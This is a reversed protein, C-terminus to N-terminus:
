AHSLPETDTPCAFSPARRSPTRSSPEPSIVALAAPGGFGHLGTNVGAHVWLEYSGDPVHEPVKFRLEYALQYNLHGQYDFRNGWECAFAKKQMRDVLWISPKPPYFFQVLNRGFIRCEQGPAVEDFEAFFVEPRNVVFPPSVGEASRVWLIQVAGQLKGGIVQPSLPYQRGYLDGVQDPPMVNDLYEAVTNPDLGM